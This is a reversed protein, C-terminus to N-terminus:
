PAPNDKFHECFVCKYDSSGEDQEENDSPVENPTMALLAALLISRCTTYLSMM